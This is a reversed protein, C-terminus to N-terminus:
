ASRSRRLYFRKAKCITRRSTSSAWISGRRSTRTLRSERAFAKAARNLDKKVGKGELAMVGLIFLSESHGKQALPRLESIVARYDGRQYAALGEKFGAVAPTAFVVAVAILASCLVSQIRMRKM